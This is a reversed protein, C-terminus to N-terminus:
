PTVVIDDIYWGDYTISDDAELRFRIRVQSSAKYPTLDVSVPSFFSSSVIGSYKKLITWTSGNNMSIEVYGNDWGAEISYRHYFSLSPYSTGTLDLLPSIIWTNSNNDYYGSPSDSVSHTGSNKTSETVGWNGTATWGQLIGTDFNTSLLPAGAALPAASVEASSSSSPGVGNVATMVYYYKVEPTLETHVFSTGTLNDIVTGGTGTGPVTSWYIRYSTANIVSNWALRVNASGATATVGTPAAPAVPPSVTVVYTGATADNNYVILYYTQTTLSITSCVESGGAPQSDCINISNFFKSDVSDSFLEWGIDRAAGTLSITHIGATTVTFKYFSEGGAGVSGTYSQGVTITFPSAETGVGDPVPSPSGGGGCSALLSISFVLSTFNKWFSKM